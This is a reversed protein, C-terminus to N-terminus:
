SIFHERVEEGNLSGFSSFTQGLVGLQHFYKPLPSSDGLIVGMGGIVCHVEAVKIVIHCDFHRYFRNRQQLFM